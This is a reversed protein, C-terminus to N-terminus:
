QDGGTKKIAEVYKLTRAKDRKLNQWIGQLALIQATGAEAREWRAGTVEDKARLLTVAKLLTAKAPGILGMSIEGDAQNLLPDIEDQPIQEAAFEELVRKLAAQDEPTGFQEVELALCAGEALLLPFDWQESEADIARVCAEMHLQRARKADKAQVASQCDKLIKDIM